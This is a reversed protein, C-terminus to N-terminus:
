ISHRHVSTVCSECPTHVAGAAIRDRVTSCETKKEYTDCAALKSMGLELISVIHISLAGYRLAGRVAFFMSM